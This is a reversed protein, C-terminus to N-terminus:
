LKSINEQRNGNVYNHIDKITGDEYYNIYIGNINGNAFNYKKMLKGEESYEKCEGELKGNVYNCEYKIFSSYQKNDCYKIYKGHRDGNVYEIVEHLINDVFLEFKGEIKGNVMNYRVKHHEGFEGDWEKEIRQM